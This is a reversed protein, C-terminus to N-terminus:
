FQDFGYSNYSNLIVLDFNLLLKDDYIDITYNAPLPSPTNNLNPQLSLPSLHKNLDPQPSLPKNLDPQPLQSLDPQPFQSLDQQPFQSPSNSLNPQPSLPSLPKNLYPQSNLDPKPLPSVPNLDWLIYSISEDTLESQKKKKIQKFKTRTVKKEPFLFLNAELENQLFIYCHKGFNESM